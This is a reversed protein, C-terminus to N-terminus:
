GESDLDVFSSFAVSAPPRGLGVREFEAADLGALTGGVSDLVLADHTALRAGDDTV